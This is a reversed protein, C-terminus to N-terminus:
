LVYKQKIKKHNKKQAYKEAAIPFMATTIASSAFFIIKGMMGLASYLGAEYSSFFHKVLIVDSTYLSTLGAVTLLAPFGYSLADGLIFPSKEQKYRFVFKLPLLSFFYTALDAIIIGLIAGIYSYGAKVLFYGMGLKLVAAV